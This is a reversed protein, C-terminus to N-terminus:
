TMKAQNPKPLEYFPMLMLTKKKKQTSFLKEARTRVQELIFYLGM